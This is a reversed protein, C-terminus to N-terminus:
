SKNGEEVEALHHGQVLGQLGVLDELAEITELVEQAAGQVETVEAVEQAEAVELVEIVEPVEQAVLHDITTAVARHLEVPLNIVEPVEDLHETVLLPIEIQLAEETHAAVEQLHRLEM